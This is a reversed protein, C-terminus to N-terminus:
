GDRGVDNRLRRSCVSGASVAWRAAQQGAVTWKYVPLKRFDLSETAGAFGQREFRGQKAGCRRKQTPPPRMM